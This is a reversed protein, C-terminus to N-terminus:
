QIQNIQLNCNKKHMYQIYAQIHAHTLYKRSTLLNHDLFTASLQHIQRDIVSIIHPLSFAPNCYIFVSNSSFCLTEHKDSWFKFDNLLKDYISEYILNLLKIPISIITLINNTYTVDTIYVPKLTNRSRIRYSVIISILCLPVNWAKVSATWFSFSSFDFMSSMMRLYISM